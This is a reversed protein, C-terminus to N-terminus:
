RYGLFAVLTDRKGSTVKKVEHEKSPDMVLVSHPKQDIAEPPTNHIFLKGGDYTSDTRMLVSVLYAPDSETDTHVGVYANEGMSNFQMRLINLCSSDLGTSKEIKGLFNASKLIGLISNTYKDNVIRSVHNDRNIFRVVDLRCDENRSDGISPQEVIEPNNDFISKIVSDLQKWDERAFIDVYKASQEYRFM